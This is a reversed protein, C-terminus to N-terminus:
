ASFRRVLRPQHADIGKGTPEFVRGLHEVSSQFFAIGISFRAGIAAARANLFTQHAASARLQLLAFVNSPKSRDIFVEHLCDNRNRRSFFAIM